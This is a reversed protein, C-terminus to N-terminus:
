TQKRSCAWQHLQKGFTGEQIPTLKVKPADISYNLFKRGQGGRGEYEAHSVLGLTSKSCDLLWEERSSKYCGIPGPSAAYQGKVYDVHHSILKLDNVASGREKVSFYVLNRDQDMLPGNWGKGILEEVQQPLNARDPVELALLLGTKTIGDSKEVSQRLSSECIERVPTESFSTIWALHWGFPSQIPGVVRDPQAALIAKEFQPVMEGEFVAGLDGGVPSSSPDISARRAVEKFKQFRAEEPAALIEGRLGAAVKQERVLIHFTKASRVKGTEDIRTPAQAM